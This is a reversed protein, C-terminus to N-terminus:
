YIILIGFCIPIRMKLNNLIFKLKGNMLDKVLLKTLEM